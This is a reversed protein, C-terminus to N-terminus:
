VYGKIKKILEEMIVVWEPANLARQSDEYWRDVYSQAKEILEQTTDWYPYGDYTVGTMDELAEKTGCESCIYTKNDRRSLAGPYEGRFEDNPIGHHCRPCEDKNM